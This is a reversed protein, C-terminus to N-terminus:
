CNQNTHKNAPMRGFTDLFDFLCIYKNSKISAIAFWNWIVTSPEPVGLEVTAGDGDVSHPTMIHVVREEFEDLDRIKKFGNVGSRNYAEKITTAKVRVRTRFKHFFFNNTTDVNSVNSTVQSWGLVEEVACREQLCWGYCETRGSFRGM